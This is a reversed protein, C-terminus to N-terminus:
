LGLKGSLKESIKLLFGMLKTGYRNTLFLTLLILVTGVVLLQPVGFFGELGPIVCLFSGVAVAIMGQILYYPMLLAAEKDMFQLVRNKSGLARILLKLLGAVAFIAFVYGLTFLIPMHYDSAFDGNIARNAVLCAIALVGCLVYFGIEWGTEKKDEFHKQLKAYFYGILVIVFWRAFPFYSNEGTVIFNGVITDLYNGFHPVPLVYSLVFLGASILLVMKDSLHLKKALAFFLYFWGVFMYIDSALISVFEFDFDPVLNFYGPWNALVLWRAIDFFVAIVFFSIANKLIAKVTVNDYKFRYGMVLMFPYPQAILLMLWIFTMAGAQQVGAETVEELFHILPLSLMCVTTIVNLPEVTKVTEIAGSKGSANKKGKIVSAIGAPTGDAMIEAANANSIGFKKGIEAVFRMKSISDGGLTDFNDRRGVKGCTLISEFTECIVKETEDLPAEYETKNEEAEPEKLSKRDLKGNNNLPMKDIRVLSRPIMYEPLKVRLDARIEEETLEKGEELVYYGAIYTKGAKDEFARAAANKIGSVNSLHKEVEGLDVRQGNVKVMWDMRSVYCASGTEDIYAIDGTHIRWKGNGLDEFKEASLKPNNLYKVGFEGVVCLEGKEGQPVERGEKDLVYLTLGDFAKGIQSDRYSGDVRCYCVGGFTESMGYVNYIVGSEPNVNVLKEGGVLCHNLPFDSGSLVRFVQPSVFSGDIRERKWYDTMGQLSLCTEESLIHIAAGISLQTYIECASVIFSFKPVATWRPQDLDYYLVTNREVALAM